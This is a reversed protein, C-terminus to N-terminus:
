CCSSAGNSSPVLCLEKALCDTHKTTLNLVVADDTVTYDDVPYQSIATDEYEVELDIDDNPVISKALKLIDAMKGTEIRHDIDDGVWAQLQCTQVSHVKGGCDIFTKSVQGVETIHFSVPVQNQNPLQILFQKNRNAELLSKFDKLKM